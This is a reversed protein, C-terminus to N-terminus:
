ITLEEGKSFSKGKYRILQLFFIGLSSKLLNDQLIIWFWIRLPLRM